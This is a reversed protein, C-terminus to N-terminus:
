GDFTRGVWAQVAKEVEATIAGEQRALVQAAAGTRQEVFPAYTTSNQLTGDRRSFFFSAKSLGTDVPWPSGPAQLAQLYTREASDQATTRVGRGGRRLAAALAKRLERDDVEITM